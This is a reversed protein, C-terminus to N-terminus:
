NELGKEIADALEPYDSLDTRNKLYDSRAEDPKGAKLSRLVRDGLSYEATELGYKITLADLKHVLPMYKERAEATEPSSEALSKLMAEDLEQRKTGSESKQM